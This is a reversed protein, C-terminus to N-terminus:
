NLDVKKHEGCYYKGTNLLMQLLTFLLFAKLGKIFDKMEPSKALDQVTKGSYTTLNIDAGASLLLRVMELSDSDVAEHIPRLHIRVTELNMVFDKPRLTLSYFAKGLHLFPLPSPQHPIGRVTALYWIPKHYMKVRCSGM